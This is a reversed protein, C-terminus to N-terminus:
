NHHNAIYKVLPILLRSRVFSCVHKFDDSMFAISSKLNSTKGKRKIKKFFLKERMRIFPVERKKMKKPLVKKM